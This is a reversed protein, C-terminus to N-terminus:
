LTYKEDRYFGREYYHATLDALDNCQTLIEALQSIEWRLSARDQADNCTHLRTRLLKLRRRLLRAADTYGASLERLKMSNGTGSPFVAACLDWHLGSLHLKGRHPLM